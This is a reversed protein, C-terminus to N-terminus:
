GSRTLRYNDPFNSLRLGPNTQVLDPASSRVGGGGGWVCVCM